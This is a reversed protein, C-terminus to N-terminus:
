DFYFIKWHANPLQVIKHHGHLINGYPIRLLDQNHVTMEQEDLRNYMVIEETGLMTSMQEFYINYANGKLEYYFQPISAILPKYDEITSLLSLPYHGNTNKYSEIDQILEASQKIVFDTAHDKAKELLSIRISCVTLPIVIFYFPMISNPVFKFNMKKRVIFLFVGTGLIAIASFRSGSALAGLAAAFLIISTIVLAARRIGRPYTAPQKNRGTSLHNLILWILGAPVLLLSAFSGFQFIHSLGVVFNDYEGYVYPLFIGTTLIAIVFSIIFIHKM